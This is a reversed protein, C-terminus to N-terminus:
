APAAEPIRELSARGTLRAVLAEVAPTLPVCPLDTMTGDLLALRLSVRGDGVPKCEHGSPRLPFTRASVTGDKGLTHAVLRERSFAFVTRRLTEAEDLALEIRIRRVSDGAGRRCALALLAMPASLVAFAALGKWGGVSMSLALGLSFCGLSATFVVAGPLSAALIDRHGALWDRAEPESLGVARSLYSASDVAIVLSGPAAEGSLARRIGDTREDENPLALTAPPSATEFSGAEIGLAACVSLVTEGSVPAGAEIRRVTKESVDSAKALAEQSWQRAARASRVAAGFAPVGESGFEQAM